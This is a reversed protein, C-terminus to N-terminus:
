NTTSPTIAVTSLAGTFSTNLIGDEVHIAGVKEMGAFELTYASADGFADGSRITGTTLSMGNEIGLFFLHGNRDEVFVKPRDYALLKIEKLTASDLTQLTITLAQESFTTGAEDSSTITETFTNSGKLEYKYISSASATFSEIEGTTADYAVATIDGSAAFYVNQLGGVNSKCGLDRGSSVECSM